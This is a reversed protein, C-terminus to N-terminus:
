RTISIDGLSSTVTLERGESASGRTLSPDISVSGLDTATTVDWSEAGPLSVQVDGLETLVDIGTEADAPLTLAVSGAATRLGISETGPSDLELSIDGVQSSARVEGDVSLPGLRLSGVDSHATLSTFEGDVQIDGVDAQLDLALEHGVPVLVLVDRDPSTWPAISVREPQRVTVTTGSAGAVETLHARVTQGTAPLATSGPETLALTVEEVDASPLVRVTGVTSTLSLSAPTGLATVAPIEDVDRVAIWSSVSALAFGAVVLLTTVAGILVTLVRWPRDQQPSPTLQRGPEYRPEQEVPQRTPDAHLTGTM